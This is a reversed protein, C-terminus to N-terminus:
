TWLPVSMNPISPPSYVMSQLFAELHHVMANTTINVQMVANLEAMTIQKAREVAMAVQQQHQLSHLLLFFIYDYSCVNQVITCHFM